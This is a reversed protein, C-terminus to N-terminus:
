KGKKSVTWTNLQETCWWTQGDYFAIKGPYPNGVPPPNCKGGLTIVGQWGTSHVARSRQIAADLEKQAELSAMWASDKEGLYYILSLAFGCLVVTFIVSYFTLRM